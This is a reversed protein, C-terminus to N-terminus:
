APLAETSPQSAKATAVRGTGEGRRTGPFPDGERKEDRRGRWPGWRGGQPQTCRASLSGGPCVREARRRWSRRAGAGEARAHLARMRRPVPPASASLDCISKLGAPRHRWCPLSTRRAQLAQLQSAAQPRPRWARPSPVSAAKTSEQGARRGQAQHVAHWPRPSRLPNNIVAMCVKRLIFVYNSDLLACALLCKLICKILIERKCIPLSLSLSPFRSAVTGRGSKLLALLLIHINM